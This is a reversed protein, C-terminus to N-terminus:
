DPWEAIYGLYWWVPETIRYILTQNAAEIRLVAGTYRCLLGGQADKALTLTVGDPHSGAEIQELLQVGIMVKPDAHDVRLQGNEFRTLIVDGQPLQVRLHQIKPDGPITITLESM